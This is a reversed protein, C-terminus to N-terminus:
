PVLARHLPGPHQGLGHSVPRARSIRTLLSILPWSLRRTLAENCLQKKEHTMELPLTQDNGHFSSTDSSATWPVPVSSRRIDRASTFTVQNTGAEELPQLTRVPTTTTHTENDFGYGLRIRVTHLTTAALLLASSSFSSTSSLKQDRVSVTTSLAIAAILRDRRSAAPGHGHLTVVDGALM